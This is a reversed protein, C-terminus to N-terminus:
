GFRSGSFFPQYDLGQGVLRENVIKITIQRMAQILRRRQNPVTTIAATRGPLDRAGDRIIQIMRDIFPEDPDRQVLQTAIVQQHVTRRRRDGSHVTAFDHLRQGNRCDGDRDNSRDYRWRGGLRGRSTQAGACGARRARLAAAAYAVAAAYASARLGLGHIHSGCVSRAM